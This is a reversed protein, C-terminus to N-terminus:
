VSASSAGHRPRVRGERQLVRWLGARETKAVPLSDYVQEVGRVFAEISFNSEVKARAAAGLRTRLASDDVLRAIATALTITDDPPVLLGTEGDILAEPIGGVPTAIVSRGASMAELLALPLGESRSPLAVIDVANLVEHVDDRFGLFRFRDSLGRASVRNEIAARAGRQTTEAGIALFLCGSRERAVEAAADVFTAYGKVDSIHGLIAVV